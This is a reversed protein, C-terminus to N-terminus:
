FTVEGGAFAPGVLAVLRLLTAADDGVYLVMVRGARFFHPTATWAARTTGVRWGDPAVQLAEMEAESAATYEYVQLRHGDVTIIQGTVSFFPQTVEGAAGVDAGAARLADVLSLRDLVPERTPPQGAPGGAFQKGLAVGLLRLIAPDDGVYLAVLRGAQYFHPTGGWRIPEAGTVRGAPSVVSLAALAAAEDAFEYAQVEAGAVSLSHGEVEFFPQTASGRVEVPVGTASLLAALSAQDTAHPNAGTASALATVQPGVRPTVRPPGGAPEPRGCAALVGAALVVLLMGWRRGLVDQGGVNLRIVARRGVGGKVM